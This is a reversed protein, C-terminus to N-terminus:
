VLKPSTKFVRTNAQIAKLAFYAVIFVLPTYAADSMLTSRFFPLAMTYCRILGAFTHEYMQGQLWVGFNTIVFFIVSGVPGLAALHWRNGTRKYLLSGIFGILVFSGWTYAVLPHMGIMMDSLIMIGVPVVLAMRRPLYAAALLALATIPVFNAAHPLVRATIGLLVLALSFIIQKTLRSM